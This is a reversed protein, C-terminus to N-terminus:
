AATSKYRLKLGGNETCPTKFDNVQLGSASRSCKFKKENMGAEKLTPIKVMREENSPMKEDAVNKVDVMKEADVM